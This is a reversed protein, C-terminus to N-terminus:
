REFHNLNIVYNIINQNISIRNQLFIVMMRMMMMRKMIRRMIRM